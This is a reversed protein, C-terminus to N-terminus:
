LILFTSGHMFPLNGGHLLIQIGAPTQPILRNVQCTEYKMSQIQLFFLVESRSDCQVWLMHM